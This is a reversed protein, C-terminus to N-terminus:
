LRAIAILDALNIYSINEHLETLGKETGTICVIYEHVGHILLEPYITGGGLANNCHTGIVTIKVNSNEPENMDQRCTKTAEILRDKIVKLRQTLM